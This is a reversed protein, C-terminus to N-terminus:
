KECIPVHPNSQCFVMRGTCHVVDEHRVEDMGAVHDDAIEDALELSLEIVECCLVSAQECSAPEAEVTLLHNMPRPDLPTAGSAQAGLLLLRVPHPERRRGRVECGREWSPM